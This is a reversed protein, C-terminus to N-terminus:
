KHQAKTQTKQIKEGMESFMRQCLTQVIRDDETGFTVLKWTHNDKFRHVEAQARNMIRKMSDPRLKRFEGKGMRSYSWSLVCRVACTGQQQKRRSTGLSRNTIGDSNQQLLYEDITKYVEEMNPDKPLLTSYQHLNMLCASLHNLSLNSYVIDRTRGGITEHQPAMEGTNIITFKFTDNSEREIQYMVAHGGKEANKYGGDLLVCPSHSGPEPPPLAGIKVMIKEHVDDIITQDAATEVRSLERAMELAFNLEIIPVTTADKDGYQQFEDIVSQIAEESPIRELSTIKGFSPDINAYFLRMVQANKLQYELLNALKRIEESTTRFKTQLERRQISTLKPNVLLKQIQKKSDTLEKLRAPIKSIELQRTRERETDNKQIEDLFVVEENLKEVIANVEGTLTYAPPDHMEHNLIYKTCALFLDQAWEKLDRKLNPNQTAEFEQEIQQLAAEIETKIQPFSLAEEKKSTYTFVGNIKTLYQGPQLNELKTIFETNVKSSPSLISHFFRPIKDTKQSTLVKANSDLANPDATAKHQKVDPLSVAKKGLIGQNKLTVEYGAWSSKELPTEISPQKTAETQVPPKIPLGDTASM